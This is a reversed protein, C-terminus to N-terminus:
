ILDYESLGVGLAGVLSESAVTVQKTRLGWACGVLASTSRSRLKGRNLYSASNENGGQRVRPTDRDLGFTKMPNRGRRSTFAYSGGGGIPREKEGVCHSNDKFDNRTQMKTMTYRPGATNRVKRKDNKIKSQKSDTNHNNIYRTM